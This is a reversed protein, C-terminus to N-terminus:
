SPEIRLLELPDIFGYPEATVRVSV